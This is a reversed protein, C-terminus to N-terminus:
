IITRKFIERGPQEPFTYRMRKPNFGRSDASMTIKILPLLLTTFLTVEFWNNVKFYVPSVNFEAQLAYVSTIQSKSLSQHSCSIVPAM